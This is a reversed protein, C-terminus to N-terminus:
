LGHAGVLVFRVKAATLVDIVDHASIVRLVQLKSLTVAQDLSNAHVNAVQVMSCRLSPHFRWRVNGARPKAICCTTRGDESLCLQSQSELGVLIDSLWSLIVSMSLRRSSTGAAM